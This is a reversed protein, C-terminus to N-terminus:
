RNGYFTNKAANWLSPDNQKVMRFYWYEGGWLYIERIGTAIGFAIHDEFRKANFSKNQEELSSAVISQGNAPWSETQLEHLVSDKGTLIKQSGALFAYYWSPFPYTFYRKTIQADWVRRYVSIGVIDPRPEGLALGGYNNSRSVIIPHANDLRKVLNFESVLRTRDFDTCTGFTNFFENELQYSDLSPSTKYRNVVETIYTNLQVHWEGTPKNRAWDPMHCEPWRPQRLGVSLTIKANAAEAKKFQWDLLSFDYEGERPELQNWYSVLRFHRVGVDNILADMTEEPHLGLSEAYSPIFSVGLVLPKSSNQAIYWRAIGYMGGLSVLLLGVFVVVVKHWLSQRWYATLQKKLSSQLKKYYLTLRKLM